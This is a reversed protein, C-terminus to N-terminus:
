EINFKYNRPILIHVRTGYTGFEDEFIGDDYWQKMPISNYPNYIEILEEIMKVGRQTGESGNERAKARGVGTDEVIFHLFDVEEKIQISIDVPISRPNKKPATNVLM